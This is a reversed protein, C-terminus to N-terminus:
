MIEVPVSLTKGHELAWIRGSGSISGDERSVEVGSTLYVIKRDYNTITGANVTPTESINDYACMNFNNEIEVDTLEYGRSRYEVGM